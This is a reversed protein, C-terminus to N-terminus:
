AVVFDAATVAGTVGVLVAFQVAATAGTGDADYWLKGSASDYVIRDDADHAATGTWFAATDLPGSGSGPLAAFVTRLMQVTDDAASFNQVSDINTSGQATDFVFMDAGAGGDLTDSGLGGALTDNGAGGLLKNIASNGALANDLTNGTANIKGTGTLTLNEVHAGLTYSISSEVRDIGEGALEVVADGTAGVRYVDDGAGGTLTDSGAGGDLRNAGANGTMTNNLANGTAGLSQTGAMQLREVEAAMTYGDVSVIVTDTGGRSAEVIVDALSDVEYTDDGGLGIMRDFGTGGDLTDSGASGNLTDNGAGGELHAGSVPATLTDDGDSGVEGAVRTKLTALDWQTGDAFRVFEVSGAAGAAYAHQITVRDGTAPLALVLNAATGNIIQRYVAVDSLVVSADFMLVDLAGDDAGHATDGTLTDDIVDLGFGRALRYMDAGLGGALVDNGAGGVLTDAGAGTFLLDNGDGGTVLDAADGSYIADDGGLGDITDAAATGFLLDALPTATTRDTTRMLSEIQASGLVLDDAFRLTVRNGSNFALSSGDSLEVRLTAGQVSLRVDTMLVDNRFEISLGISANVDQLVTDSGYGRGLVIRTDRAGGALYLQDDGFGGDMVDLGGNSTLSDNGAGGELTDSDASLHTDFISSVSSPSERFQDALTDDGGLGSLRDDALSGTLVNAGDNGEAVGVGCGDLLRLNEVNAYDSLRAVAGVVAAIQVTDNGEGALEVVGDGAGVVYTDDGAGGSLRNVATNLSGSLVNSRGDGTANVAAAGVLTINEIHPFLSLAADFPTEITDNSRDGGGDWYGLEVVVDGTNDIVYTDDGLGGILTDAGAGGDLRFDDLTRLGPDNRYWYWWQGSAKEEYLSADLVNNLTNGILQHTYINQRGTISYYFNRETQNPIGMIANEVNDPLQCSWFGTVLTDAGEGPLE